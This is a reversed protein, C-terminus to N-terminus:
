QRAEYELVFEAKIQDLDGHFRGGMSIMLGSTDNHVSIGTNSLRVRYEDTESGAITIARGDPFAVQLIRTETREDAVSIKVDSV